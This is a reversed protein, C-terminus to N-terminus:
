QQMAALESEHVLSGISGHLDTLPPGLGYGRHDLVEQRSARLWKEQNRWAHFYPKEGSPVSVRALKAMGLKPLLSGLSNAHPVRGTWGDALVAQIIEHATGFDKKFVGVNAERAEAIAFALPSVTNQIMEQKGTTMRARAHPDLQTLDREHLAAAFGPLESRIATFLRNFYAADPPSDPTKLVLWRREGHDLALAADDNTTIWVQSPTRGSFRSVGKGHVMIFPETVLEKLGNVGSKSIGSVENFVVIQKNVRENQYTDDIASSPLTVVNEHGVLGKLIEILAGKGGGEPGVLLVGSKFKDGPRQVAAALRDLVDSRDQEDPLLTRLHLEINPWEGPVPEVGTQRYTNLMLVGAVESLRPAGPRYDRKKPKIARSSKFFDTSPKGIGALHYNEADFADKSLDDLSGLRVFRNEGVVFAYTSVLKALSPKLHGFSAPSKALGYQGFSEDPEDSLLGRIYSYTPPSTEMARRFKETTERENYGPHPESHQHALAEGNECHALLKMFAFWEPESLTAADTVCHRVWPDAEYIADFNLLKGTGEVPAPQRQQTNRAPMPETPILAELESLSHRQSGDLLDVTVLKPNAADKVNFSGPARDMRALDATIDTKWGRKALQNKVYRSTGQFANAVRRRDEVSEVVVPEDLFVYGHFGNGTNTIAALKLGIDSFAELVGEASVTQDTRGAYRSDDSRPMDVDFYLGYASIVDASTGRGSAPREGLLGMSYFITASPNEQVIAALETDLSQVSVFITKPPQGADKIFISVLGNTAGQFLANYFDSYTHM